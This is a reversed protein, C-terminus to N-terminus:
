VLDKVGTEPVKYMAKKAQESNALSLIMALMDIPRYDKPLARGNLFITPTAIINQRRTWAVQEKEISICDESPTDNDMPYLARFKKIDIHKYWDTLLKNMLDRENDRGRINRMWYELVYHNSNPVQDQEKAQVFRYEISVLEPYLEVLSEIKEHQQGCPKCYLNGAFVFKLPADKSGSVVRIDSNFKVEAETTSSLQHFVLHSNRVRAADSAERRFSLTDEMQNKLVLVLSAIVLSGGGVTTIISPTFSGGFSFGSWVFFLILQLTLLGDVILCLKCWAGFKQQYFVSYIVMPAAALSVIYLVNLVTPSWSPAVALMALCCVQCLFYIFVADSLKVFEFFSAGESTLVRECDNRRGVPTCFNEVVEFKVGVDKAILLYGVVLGALSAAYIGITLLSFTIYASWLFPILLAVVSAYTFISLFRERRYLRNNEPDKIVPTPEIHLVVGNWDEIREKNDTLDKPNTIVVLERQNSLQLVYPFQLDALQEKEIRAAINPIGLRDLTDVFSLLSPYDAHSSILHNCYSESVPIKLDRLFSSLPYSGM